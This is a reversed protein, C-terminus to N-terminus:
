TKKLTGSFYGQGTSYTQTVAQSFYIEIYDGNSVSVGGSVGTPQYTSARSSDNNLTGGSINVTSGNKRIVVGGQGSGSANNLYPVNYNFLFHGSTSFEIRDTVLDVTMGGGNITVGSINMQRFGTGSILSSTRGYIITPAASSTTIIKGDSQVSLNYAESGSKGSGYGSLYVDTTARPIMIADVDTTSSYSGIYVRNPGGDYKLYGGFSQAIGENLRLFTTGGNNSHFYTNNDGTNEAFNLEFGNYTVTRDSTLTGNTNYINSIGGGSVEFDFHNGVDDYTVIIGTETNGSVMSGVFDQVQEQSLNTNDLYGELSQTYIAADNSLSIELNNGSLGFVDITQLENSTSNDTAVFDFEDNDDDYTVSIGSETNGTVMSGVYDQVQEQSLNTNDLYGSLDVTSADNTLSLTNGTLSLDQIENSSDNDNDAINFTTNTGGSITITRDTGNASSGLDQADTNDLYGSLDVTTGDNTLSLTNGTLSLDQADTNDLYGSLDVTTADNTLSLTNGSLSLDQADANDLYSSLDVFGGNEITLLNGDLSITQNDTGTAVNQIGSVYYEVTDIQAGIKVSLKHDDNGLTRGVITDIDIASNIHIHQYRGAINSLLISSITDADQLQRPKIGQGQLSYAVILFIVAFLYKM